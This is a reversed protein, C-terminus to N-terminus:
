PLEALLWVPRQQLLRHAPILAAVIALAPLYMAVLAAAQLWAGATFFSPLVAAVVAAGALVGFLYAAIFVLASEALFFYLVEDSLGVSAMIGFERRREQVAAAFCTVAIVFGLALAVYAVLGLDSSGVQAGLLAAFKQDFTLFSARSGTASTAYVLGHGGAAPRIAPDSVVPLGTAASVQAPTGTMGAPPTLTAWGSVLGAARAVSLPVTVRAGDGAMKTLRVDTGGVHLAAGDPLGLRRLALGTVTGSSGDGRGQGVLLVDPHGPLPGDLTVTETWGAPHRVPHLTGRAVLWGARADLRVGGAPVVWFPANGTASTVASAGSDQYGVAITRVVVVSAIALGIGAVAFLAREPSRRLTALAFRLLKGSTRESAGAPEAQPGAVTPTSALQTV